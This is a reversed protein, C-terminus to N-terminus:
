VKPAARPFENPENIIHCQAARPHFIRRQNIASILPIITPRFHDARISFNNLNALRSIQPNSSQFKFNKLRNKLELIFNALITFVALRVSCSFIFINWKIHYISHLNSLNKFQASSSLADRVSALGCYLAFLRSRHASFNDNKWGWGRTRSSDISPFGSFFLTFCYKSRFELLCIEYHRQPCTVCKKKSHDNKRPKERGLFFPLTTQQGSHSEM